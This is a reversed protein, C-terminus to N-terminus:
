RIRYASHCAVCASTVEALMKYAAVPEGEQAKLAFRSAAKHMDTGARRMGEPMLGAMHAAGHAELSSMGLRQEAIDAAKDLEGKGMSVLIANISRLHDRMNSLMHARMMEPFEVLQRADGDAMSASTTSILLMLLAPRMLNEM